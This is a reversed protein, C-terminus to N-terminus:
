GASGGSTVIRSADIGYKDANAPVFRITAKLDRVAPYGSGWTPVWEGLGLSGSVDGASGASVTVAMTADRTILAGSYGLQWRQAHMMDEPDRVCPAAVIPLGATATATVGAIDLCLGSQVHVVAQPQVSWHALRWAQPSVAAADDACPQMELSLSTSGEALPASPTICLKAGVGPLM